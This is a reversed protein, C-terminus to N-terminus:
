FFRQMYLYRRRIEEFNEEIAAVENVNNRKPLRITFFLFKFTM